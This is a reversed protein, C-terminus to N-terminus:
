YGIGRILTEEKGVVRKRCKEVNEVSSIENFGPIVCLDIGISDIFGCSWM